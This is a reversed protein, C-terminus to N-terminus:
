PVFGWCVFLIDRYHPNKSIGLMSPGHELVTHTDGCDLVGDYVGIVPPLFYAWESNSVKLSHLRLTTYRIHWYTDCEFGRGHTQLFAFPFPIPRERKWWAKLKPHRPKLTPIGM